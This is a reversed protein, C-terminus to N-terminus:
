ETCCISLSLKTSKSMVTKKRSVETEKKMFDKLIYQEQYWQIQLAFSREKKWPHRIEHGKKLIQQKYLIIPEMMINKYM